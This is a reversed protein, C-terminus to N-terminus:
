QTESTTSIIMAADDRGPLGCPNLAFYLKSTHSPMLGASLSGSLAALLLASLVRTSSEKRTNASYGGRGLGREAARAAAGRRGDGFATKTYLAGMFVAARMSSPIIRARASADQTSEGAGGVAWGDAGVDTRAADGGVCVGAGAGVAVGAGDGAGAADWVGTGVGVVVGAGVAAGVYVGLGVAVFVGVGM